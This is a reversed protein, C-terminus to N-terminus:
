HSHQTGRLRWIHAFGLMLAGSITLQKEFDHLPEAFASVLLLSIGMFAFGRILPSGHKVILNLSLPAAMLVFVKHIWEAESLLGLLPLSAAFFPLFLCHVVCLSSLLVGGKDIGISNITLTNKM